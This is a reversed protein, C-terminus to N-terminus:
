YSRLENGAAIQPRTRGIVTVVVVPYPDPQSIAIPVVVIVAVGIGKTADALSM